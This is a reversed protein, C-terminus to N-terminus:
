YLGVSIDEIGWGYLYYGGGNIYTSSYILTIDAKFGNNGVANNLKAAVEIAISAANIGPLFKSGVKAVLQNAIKRALEQKGRDSLTQGLEGVDALDDNQVKITYYRREGLTYEPFLSRTEAANNINAAGTKPVDIYEEFVIQYKLGTEEDIFYDVDTSILEKQYEVNENENAAFVTQPMIFAISSIAGSVICVGANLIVVIKFVFKKRTLLKSSYTLFVILNIVFVM